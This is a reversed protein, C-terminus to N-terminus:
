REVGQRGTLHEHVEAEPPGYGQGRPAGIPVVVAPHLRLDGRVAAVLAQVRRREVRGLLEPLAVVARGVRRELTLIVAAPPQGPQVLLANAPLLRLSPHCSVPRPTRFCPPAPRGPPTERRRRFCM